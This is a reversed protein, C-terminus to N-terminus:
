FSTDVRKQLKVNFSQQAIRSRRHSLYGPVKWTGAESMHQRRGAAHQEAPATSGRPQLEPQETWNVASPLCADGVVCDRDLGSPATQDLCESGVTLVSFRGRDRRTHHPRQSM